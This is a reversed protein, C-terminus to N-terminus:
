VSENFEKVYLPYQGILAYLKFYYQKPTYAGMLFEQSLVFLKEIDLDKPIM